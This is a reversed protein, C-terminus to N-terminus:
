PVLLKDLCSITKSALILTVLKMDRSFIGAIVTTIMQMVKM